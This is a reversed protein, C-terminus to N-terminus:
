PLRRKVMQAAWMKWSSRTFAQLRHTPHPLLALRQIPLSLTGTYALHRLSESFRGEPTECLGPMIASAPLRLLLRDLDDM